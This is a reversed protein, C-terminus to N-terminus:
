WCLPTSRLAHDAGKDGVARAARDALTTRRDGLLVDLVDEDLGGRRGCVFGCCRGVGKRALNTFRSVRDRQFVVQRFILNELAVEVNRVEAAVGVADLGSRPAVEVPVGALQVQWL